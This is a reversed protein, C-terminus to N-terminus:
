KETMSGEHVIFVFPEQTYLLVAAAIHHLAPAVGKIPTTSDTM